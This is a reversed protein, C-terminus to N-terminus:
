LLTTEMGWFWPVRLAWHYSIYGRQNLLKRGKSDTMLMVKLVAMNELDINLFVWYIQIVGVLM